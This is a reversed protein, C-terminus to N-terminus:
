AVRAKPTRLRRNAPACTAMASAEEELHFWEAAMEVDRRANVL